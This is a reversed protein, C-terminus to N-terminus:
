ESNLSNDKNIEEMIWGRYKCVDMFNIIVKCETKSARSTVGYLLGETNM